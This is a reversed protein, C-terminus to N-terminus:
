DSDYEDPWCNSCYQSRCSCTDYDVYLDGEFEADEPIGPVEPGWYLSQEQDKAIVSGNPFFQVFSGMNPEKWCSEIAEKRTPKACYEHVDGNPKRELILGDPYWTIESSDSKRVLSVSHSYTRFRNNLSPPLIPRRKETLFVLHSEPRYVLVTQLYTTTM